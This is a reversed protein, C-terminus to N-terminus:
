MVWNMVGLVLRATFGYYGWYTCNDTNSYTVTVSLVFVYSCSRVLSVEIRMWVRFHPDTMGKKKDVVDPQM